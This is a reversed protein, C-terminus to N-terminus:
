AGADWLEWPDANWLGRTNGAEESKHLLVTVEDAAQAAIKVYYRAEGTVEEVVATAERARVAAKRARIM